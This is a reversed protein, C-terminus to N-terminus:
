LGFHCRCKGCSTNCRRGYGSCFTWFTGRVLQLASRATCGHEKLVPPGVEEREFGNFCRTDPDHDTYAGENSAVDM